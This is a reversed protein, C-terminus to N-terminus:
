WYRTSPRSPTPPHIRQPPSLREWLLLVKWCAATLRQQRHEQRRLAREHQRQATSAQWTEQWRQNCVANRLVLLPNVHQRGWHMGAGKLRAEVVLKNASEVMGSGIPWGAEQYTPYQMHAERKELYALKESLLAISPHQAQL